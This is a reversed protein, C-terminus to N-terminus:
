GEGTTGAGTVNEEDTKAYQAATADLNQVAADLQDRYSRLMDVAAEADSDLARDNFIRTAGLSVPDKAWSSVRLEKDALELQRDVRALADAFAGRLNPVADPDVRLIDNQGGGGHNGAM